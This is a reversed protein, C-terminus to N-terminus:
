LVNSFFDNKSFLRAFPLVLQGQLVWNRALKFLGVTLHSYLFRGNKFSYSLLVRWVFLIFM